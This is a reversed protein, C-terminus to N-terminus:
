VAATWVPENDLQVTIETTGEDTSINSNNTTMVGTFTLTGLIEGADTGDRQGLDLEFDRAIGLAADLRDIEDINFIGNATITFQKGTVKVKRTPVEGPKACDRRFKDSTNVTRQIQFQELGCITTFTGSGPTAELKLDGFDAETPYTM